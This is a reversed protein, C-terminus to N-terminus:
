RGGGDKRQNQEASGNDVSVSGATNTEEPITIPKARDGYESRIQENAKNYLKNIIGQTTEDGFPNKETDFMVGENQTALLTEGITQLATKIAGVRSANDAFFLALANVSGDYEVLSKSILATNLEKKNKFKNKANGYKIIAQSIINKITKNLETEPLAAYDKSTELMANTLNKIDDNANETLVSLLYENGYAKYFIAKKMRDYITPLVEGFKNKHDSLSDGTQAKNKAFNGIFAQNNASSLETQTDLLSMDLAPADNMAIEMTSLQSGSNANSRAGIQKLNNKRDDFVRVLTANPTKAIAAPSIGHNTADKILNKVYSKNGSEDYVQKAITRVNNLAYINGAQRKNYDDRPRNLKDHSAVIDNSNVVAYYTEIKDNNPMVVLQRKGINEEPIVNKNAGISVMPAAEYPTNGTGIRSYDMKSAINRVQDISEVRDRLKNQAIDPQVAEPLEDFPKAKQTQNNKEFAATIEEIDKTTITDSAPIIEEVRPKEDVSGDTLIREQTTSNPNTNNDTAANVGTDSRTTSIEPQSVLNQLDGGTPQNTGANYDGELESLTSQPKQPNNSLKSAVGVVGAGLGAMVGAKTGAELVGQYEDISAGGKKAGLGGAYTEFSEQPIETIVEKFVDKFLGSKLANKGLANAIINQTGTLGTAIGAAAGLGILKPNEAYSSYLESLQKKASAEDLTKRFEKYNEDTLLQEDSANTIRDAIEGKVAGAGLAAGQLGQLGILARAGLGAAGGLGGTVLFPAVNGIAEAATMGPNRAMQKLYLGINSLAGKDQYAQKEEAQLKLEDKYANSQNDELTKINDQLYNSVPNNIGFADAGSKIVGATSKGLTTLLDLGAEGYGREIKAPRPVLNAFESIMEEPVEKNQADTIYNDYAAQKGTTSLSDYGIQNKYQEFPIPPSSPVLNNLPQKEAQKGRKALERMYLETWDM